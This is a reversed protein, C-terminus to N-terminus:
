ESDTRIKSPTTLNCAHSLTSDLVGCMHLATAGPDPLYGLASCWDAPIRFLTHSGESIRANTKLCALRSDHDLRSIAGFNRSSACTIPIGQLHVV